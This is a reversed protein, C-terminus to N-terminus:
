IALFFDEPLRLYPLAAEFRTPLAIRRLFFPVSREPLPRLTFLRLCAIAIPRDSARLFPAFTGRLRVPRLPPPRFLVPRLLPPRLLPPRLAPPLFFDDLRQGVRRNEKESIL